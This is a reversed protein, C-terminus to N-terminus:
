ALGKQAKAKEISLSLLRETKSPYKHRGRHWMPKICRYGQRRSEVGCRPWLELLWRIPGPTLSM